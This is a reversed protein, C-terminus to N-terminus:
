KPLGLVLKPDLLWRSGYYQFCTGPYLTYMQVTMSVTMSVTM